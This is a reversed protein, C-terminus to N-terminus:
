IYKLIEKEFEKIALGRHSIKNKVELPITGFCGQETIFLPDYGFGSNGNLKFDIYGKCEGMVTFEAGNPFVCAIACVFKATRKEKPVGELLGLLKSNNQQSNANEGSFRASYIGPAGNLYDVCLGSDDAITPMNTIKSAFRAKILANEQFTSGDEVIEPLPKLLYNESILKINLNNFVANFELIKHQNKTAIFFEM